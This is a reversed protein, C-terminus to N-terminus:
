DRRYRNVWLIGKVEGMSANINRFVSWKIVKCDPAIHTWHTDVGRIRLSSGIHCSDRSFTGKCSNHTCERSVLEVGDAGARYRVPDMKYHKHSRYYKNHHLLHLCGGWVGMCTPEQEKAPLLLGVKRKKVKQSDGVYGVEATETVVQRGEREGVRELALAM